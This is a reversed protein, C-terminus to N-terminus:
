KMKLLLREKIKRKSFYFNKDQNKQKEPDALKQMKGLNKYLKKKIKKKLTKLL